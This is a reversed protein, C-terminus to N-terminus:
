AGAETTQCRGSGPRRWVVSCATDTTASTSTSPRYHRPNHAAHITDDGLIAVDTERLQRGGPAAISTGVRRYYTNDEQGQYLAIAAWM